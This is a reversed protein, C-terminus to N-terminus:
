STPALVRLRAGRSRLGKYFRDRLDRVRLVRHLGESVLALGPLCIVMLATARVARFAGTQALLPGVVYFLPMHALFIVLTNRAIFRVLRPAGLPGVISFVLWTSGLYLISVMVSVVLAAELPTGARWKMFVLTRELPLRASLTLWGGVAITLVALGGITGWSSLWTRQAKRQGYWYGLLFVTSWNPVLMYAVFRGAALMLVTRAAIECALSLVLVRPTVRLRDAFLAWLVIVHVYTGLYWTTPNAPFNDVLVNVGAAFPLYNSAMLRGSVMTLLVAFSLGILYVEFLRNYAVRWRNRSENALSYGVGFLFFTVGLQKSYIPPLVALPAWAAVHGYVILTMGICKLWDIFPRYTREM